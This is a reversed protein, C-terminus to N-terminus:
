HQIILTSFPVQVHQLVPPLQMSLSYIILQLRYVNLVFPIQSIANLAHVQVYYVNSLHQQYEMDQYVLLTM